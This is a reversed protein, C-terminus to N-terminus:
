GKIDFKTEPTSVAFVTKGPMMDLDDEMYDLSHFAFRHVKRQSYMNEANGFYGNNYAARIGTEGHEGSLHKYEWYFCNNNLHRAVGRPIRYTEGDRLEYNEFPDDAYRHYGFRTSGGPAEFNKFVGVVMEADRARMRAIEKKLEARDVKPRYASAARDMRGSAYNQTTTNTKSM